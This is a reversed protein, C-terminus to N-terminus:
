GGASAALGEVATRSPVDFGQRQNLRYASSLTRLRWRIRSRVAVAPVFPKATSLKLGSIMPSGTSIADDPAWVTAASSAGLAFQACLQVGLGRDRCAEFYREALRENDPPLPERVYHRGFAPSYFDERFIWVLEGPHGKESLFASFQELAEAWVPVATM